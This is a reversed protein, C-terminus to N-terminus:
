RKWHGGEGFAVVPCGCSIAEVPVIGFDEVGCFLLGRAERYIDRFREQASM